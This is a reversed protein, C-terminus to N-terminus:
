RSSRGSRMRFEDDCGEGVPVPIDIGDADCGEAVSEAGDIEADAVGVTASANANSGLESDSVDCDIVFEMFVGETDTEDVIMSATGVAALAFTTQTVSNTVTVDDQSHQIRQTSSQFYSFIYRKAAQLQNYRDAYSALGTVM